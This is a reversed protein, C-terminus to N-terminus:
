RYSLGLLTIIQPLLPTTDDNILIDYSLGSEQAQRVPTHQSAIRAEVETRSCGNRAMVRRIRTEHDTEVIWADDVIHDLGSEFLIASEVFLRRVTEAAMQQRWQELDRRVAGHVIDNLLALKSKDVFVIQSLLKRDIQGESVVEPSIEDALRRHIDMDRDMLARARLDCDYVPYGLVTLVKAVVSKGSGIKGSIATLRNQYDTTRNM